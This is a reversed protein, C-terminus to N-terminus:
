NKYTNKAIKKPRYTNVAKSEKKKPILAFLIAVGGGFTLFYLVFEILQEM